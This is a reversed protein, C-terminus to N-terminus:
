DFYPVLFLVGTRRKKMKTHIVRPTPILSSVVHSINSPSSVAFNADCCQLHIWKLARMCRKRRTQSQDESSNAKDDGWLVNEETQKVHQELFIWEHFIILIIPSERVMIIEKSSVNKAHSHEPVGVSGSNKSNRNIKRLIENNTVSEFIQIMEWYRRAKILQFTEVSSVAVCASM